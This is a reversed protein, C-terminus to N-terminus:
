RRDCARTINRSVILKGELCAFLDARRIRWRGGRGAHTKLAPLRRALIWNRVTRPCVSALHSAEAVSLLVRETPSNRM